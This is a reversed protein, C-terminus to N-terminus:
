CLRSREPFLLLLHKGAARARRTAIWIHWKFSRKASEGRCAGSPSANRLSAGLATLIGGEGKGQGNGGPSANSRMRRMYSILSFFFSFFIRNM